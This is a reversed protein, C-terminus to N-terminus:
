RRNAFFLTNAQECHHTKEFTQLAAETIAQVETRLEATQSHYHLEVMVWDASQLAALSEAHGFITNEAGEADVKVLTKGRAYRTFLEAFSVV